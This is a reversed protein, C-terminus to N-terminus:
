QAAAREAVSEASYFYEEYIFDRIEKKATDLDYVYYWVGSIMKGSSPVNDNPISIQEFEPSFTLAWTGLGIIDNTSLSTECEKAVMEAVKPLKLPNMQKVKAFMAMLVEKQRNGRMIDSDTHRIRAYCVAQGGNLLQEGASTLNPCEVGLYRMEPFINNNLENKEKEDVDVTVGGIYDIVRALGFFNVTVYDEIELDFNQNLTKVALQSKGYAYAHTLKDKSHGEISVYTDRAISTLKLKKHKKDITLLVIADSRGTLNDQRSDIGFLAINQIDDYESTTIGLDTQDLPTREIGSLTKYVYGYFGAAVATLVCILVILANRLKHGKRKKTKKKSHSNKTPRSASHSGRRSRYQASTSSIDVYKDASSKKGSSSYVDIGDDNIDYDDYKM